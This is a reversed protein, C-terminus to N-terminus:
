SNKSESGIRQSGSDELRDLEIIPGHYEEKAVLVYYLISFLVVGGWLVSNWNMTAPTVEMTEPWFSFFWATALFCCVFVNLITGTLGPVHWPGWTLGTGVTNTLDHSEDSIQIGGTLRRYLLLLTAVLYSSYLGAIAVSVLDEFVTYSGFNILQLLVSVAATLGVAYM